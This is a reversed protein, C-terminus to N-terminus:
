VGDGEECTRGKESQRVGQESIKKANDSTTRNTPDVNYIIMRSKIPSYTRVRPERATCVNM